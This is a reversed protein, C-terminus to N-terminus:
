AGAADTRYGDLQGLVKPRGYGGRGANRVRVEDAVQTGVGDDVVPGFVKFLNEVVVIEHQVANAAL